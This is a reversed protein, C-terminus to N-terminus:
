PITFTFNAVPIKATPMAGHVSPGTSYRLVVTGHIVEGPNLKAFAPAHPGFAGSISGTVTGGAAVDSTSALFGLNAEGVT